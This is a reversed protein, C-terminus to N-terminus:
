WPDGEEGRILGLSERREHEKELRLRLFEGPDDTITSLWAESAAYGRAEIPKKWEPDPTALAGQGNLEEASPLGGYGALRGPAVSDGRVKVVMSDVLDRVRAAEADAPNAFLVADLYAVSLEHRGTAALTLARNFTQGRGAETLAADADAFEGARYLALGRVAPDGTLYAAGPLSSWLLLRGWAEPGALMLCIIGVVAIVGVRKM